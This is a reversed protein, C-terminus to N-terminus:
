ARRKKSHSEVVEAGVYTAVSLSIAVTALAPSIVGFSGLVLAGVITAADIKKSLGTLKEGTSREKM